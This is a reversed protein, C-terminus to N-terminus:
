ICPPVQSQPSGPAPRASHPPRAMALRRPGVALRTLTICAHPIIEDLNESEARLAPEEDRVLGHRGLKGRKVFQRIVKSFQAAVAPFENRHGSNRRGITHHDYELAENMLSAIVCSRREDLRARASPSSGRARSIEKPGTGSASHSSMSRTSPARPAVPRARTKLLM